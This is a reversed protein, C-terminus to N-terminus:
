SSQVSCQCPATLEVRTGKGPSSDILFHGRLVGLRERMALLGIGAASRYAMAVPFGKGNDTVVIRIRQADIQLQATVATAEAHKEINRLCEQVSRYLMASVYGDIGDHEGDVVQVEVSVGVREGWDQALQRVADFLGLHSLVDPHLEHSKLRAWHSLDLLEARYQTLRDLVDKMTSPAAAVTGMSFVVAALRASVEDHLDMALQRRYLDDIRLLRPLVDAGRDGCKKRASIGDRTGGKIQYLFDQGEKITSLIHLFDDGLVDTVTLPIGSGHRMRLQELLGFLLFAVYIGLAMVRYHELYESSLQIASRLTLVMRSGSPLHIGMGLVSRVALSGNESKGTLRGTDSLGDFLAVAVSRDVDGLVSGWQAAILNEDLQMLVHQIQTDGSMTGEGHGLTRWTPGRDSLVCSDIHQGCGGMLGYMTTEPAMDQDREMGMRCSAQEDGRVHGWPMVCALEVSVLAPANSGPVRLHDYLYEALGQCLAPQTAFQDALDIIRLAATGADRWTMRDFGFLEDIDNM